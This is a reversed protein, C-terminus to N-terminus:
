RNSFIRLFYANRCTYYKSLIFNMKKKGSMHGTQTELGDQLAHPISQSKLRINDRLGKIRLQPLPCGWFGHNM